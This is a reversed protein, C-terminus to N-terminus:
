NWVEVRRVPFEWSQTRLGLGGEKDIIRLGKLLSIICVEQASLEGSIEQEEPGQVYEGEEKDPM